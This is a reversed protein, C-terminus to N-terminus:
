PVAPTSPDKITVQSGPKLKNQGERVVVESAKLGDNIVIQGDMSMGTKVPRAEVKKDEQVLYVFPGDLGPVIAEVPLVPVKKLTEILVRATVFQGPWLALKENPFIAKLKLTGTSTDIQNDVLELQGEDLTDGNENVAQVKLQAAGPQMHQNLQSLFHQPLTFIIAIPQLQTVVVLGQDQNATVVNGADLLRVGTRGALPTRMTTFDLNLKAASIAAEDAQVLASLQTVTAESQDLVQKSVAGSKSLAQVRVLELQANALQAADQAKKAQAEELIAEYPRPDIKALVDGSEVMSGESFNVSDLTGSVRPRVTVTNYAQVTGIGTLWVPVDREHVTATNVLVSQPGSPAASQGTSSNTAAKVRWYAFACVGSILLLIWIWRSKTM